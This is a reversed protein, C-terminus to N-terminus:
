GEVTSLGTGLTCVSGTIKGKGEKGSVGRDWMGGVSYLCFLITHVTWIKSIPIFTDGTAM